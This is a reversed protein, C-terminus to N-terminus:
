PEVRRKGGSGGLPTIEVQRSLRECAAPDLHAVDPRSANHAGCAVAFAMAKQPGRDSTFLLGALLSDGCGVPHVVDVSPPQVLYERGGTRFIAAGAGDTVIAWRAGKRALLRTALSPDELGFTALCEQANPKAVLVNGISLAEVLTPGCIDLVVPVGTACIRRYLDPRPTSGALVICRAPLLGRVTALIAETDSDSLPPNDQYVTTVHDPGYITTGVRNEGRVGVIRHPIGEKLIREEIERGRRGGAAVVAVVEAGLDNLARAVNLGKGTAWTRVHSPRYARGPTFGAVPFFHEVMANVTITVIM